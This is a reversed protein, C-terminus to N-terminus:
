GRIDLRLPLLDALKYAAEDVLALPPFRAFPSRPCRLSMRATASLAKALKVFSTLWFVSAVAVVDSEVFVGGGQLYVHGEGTDLRPEWRAGSGWRSAARCFIFGEGGRDGGPKEGGGM